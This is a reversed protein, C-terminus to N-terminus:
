RSILHCPSVYSCYSIIHLSIIRSNNM